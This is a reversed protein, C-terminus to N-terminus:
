RTRGHLLWRHAARVLPLVSMGAENERGILAARVTGAQYCMAMVALM